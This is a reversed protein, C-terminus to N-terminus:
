HLLWYFFFRVANRVQAARNFNSILPRTCVNARINFIRLQGPQQPVPNGSGTELWNYDPFVSRSIVPTYERNVQNRVQPTAAMIMQFNRQNRLYDNIDANFAERIPEIALVRRSINRLSIWNTNQLSFGRRYLFNLLRTEINGTFDATLRAIVHSSLLRRLAGWWDPTGTQGFTLMARFFNWLLSPGEILFFQMAGMIWGREWVSSNVAFTNLYECFPRLLCYYLMLFLFLFSVTSLTTGLGWFGHSWLFILNEILFRLKNRLFWKFMNLINSFFTSRPDDNGNNDRPPEWDGIGVEMSRLTNISDRQASNLRL